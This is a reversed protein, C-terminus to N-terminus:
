GDMKVIRPYFKGVVEVLQKQSQMVTEIAKYAHPSEDLGGGILKVGHKRLEDRLLDHTLNKIAASRSM